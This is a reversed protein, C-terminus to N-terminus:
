RSRVFVANGSGSADMALLKRHFGQLRLWSEVDPLLPNGQYVESQVVEMHIVSVTSLVRPAAKLMSLESGQMDLWLLDVRPCDYSVAWTDLTLCPVECTEEFVIHPNLALSEKPPLLSSAADTGGSSLHMTATGDCDSLALRHRRVNPSFETNRRLKEFVAPVPEFAHITAEPLLRALDATDSGDNAGCDVIVPAVPLFPLLLSKPIYEPSVQGSRRRVEWAVRRLTNTAIGTASASTNM